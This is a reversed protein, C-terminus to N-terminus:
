NNWTDIVEECIDVSSQVIGVATKLGVNTVNLADVVDDAGKVLTSTVNGITETARELGDRAAGAAQKLRDIQVGIGTELDGQDRTTRSDFDSWRDAVQQIAAQQRARANEATARSHEAYHRISEDIAQQSETAKTSVMAGLVPSGRIATEVVTTGAGQLTKDHSETFQRHDAASAQCHQQHEALAEQVALLNGACAAWHEHMTQWHEGFGQELANWDQKARGALSAIRQELHGWRGSLRDTVGETHERDYEIAEHWAAAEHELLELIRRAHAEVEQARQQTAVLRARANELVAMVNTSM